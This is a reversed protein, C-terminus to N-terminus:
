RFMTASGTRLRKPKRRRRTIPSGPQGQHRLDPQRPSGASRPAVAVASRTPDDVKITGGTGSDGDHNGSTPVHSEEALTLGGAVVGHFTLMPMTNIANNGAIQVSLQVVPLEGDDRQWRRHLWEFVANWQFGLRGDTARRRHHVEREVAGHAAADAIPPTV